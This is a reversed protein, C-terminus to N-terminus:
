LISKGYSFNTRMNGLANYMNLYQVFSDSNKTALYNELQIELTNMDDQMENLMISTSFMENIQENVKYTAYFTYIFGTLFCVLIVLVFLFVKRKLTNQFLWTKM